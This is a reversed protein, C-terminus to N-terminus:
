LFEMGLEMALIKLWFSEIWLCVGSWAACEGGRGCVRFAESAGEM